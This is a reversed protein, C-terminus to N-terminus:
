QNVIYDALWQLDQEDIVGDLNLDGVELPIPPGTYQDPSHIYRGFQTVDAANLVGDFNIDGLFSPAFRISLSGPGFDGVDLGSVVILYEAGDTVDWSLASQMSGPGCGTSAAEILGECVAPCPTGPFISLFTNFSSGCLSAFVRGDGPARYRYWLTRVDFGPGVCPDNSSANSTDFPYTGDRTILGADECTNGASVPTFFVNMVGPGFNIEETGAICIFYSRGEFVDLQVASQLGCTNSNSVLANECPVPCEDDSFITLFTDFESGCTNVFLRGDEPATFYYWVAAAPLYCPDGDPVGTTDFPYAGNFLVTPAADCSLGAEVPEFFLNFVGPGADEPTAGRIAFYAVQGPAMDFEVRSQLGCANDNSAVRDACTVPCTGFTVFAQLHTDFSSGCTNADVYGHSPAVFRYWLTRSDPDGCPDDGANAGSLDFPYSGDVSVTGALDCTDGAIFVGGASPEFIFNLVGTIAPDDLAELDTVAIRYTEGAVVPFTVDSVVGCPNTTGTEMRSSCMTPCSAGSYVYLRGWRIPSASGCLNAFVTGSSPAVFHFWMSSTNHSSLYWPEFPYCPEEFGSSYATFHHAGSHTLNIPDDCTDGPRWPHFDFRLNAEGTMSPTWGSVALQYTVGATVPFYVAQGITAFTDGEETLNCGVWGTVVTDDFVVPCSPSAYVKMQTSFTTPCTKANVRGDAPATFRYWLTSEGPFSPNEDGGMTTDFPYDGNATIELATACTDGNARVGSFAGGLLMIVLLLPFVDRSRWM